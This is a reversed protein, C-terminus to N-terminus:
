GRQNNVWLIPYGFEVPRTGSLPFFINRLRRWGEQNYERLSISLYITYRFRPVFYFVPLNDLKRSFRCNQSPALYCVMYRNGFSPQTHSLASFISIETKRFKISSMLCFLKTIKANWKSSLLSYSLHYTYVLFELFWYNRGRLEWNTEHFLVINYIGDILYTSLIDARRRSYFSVIM